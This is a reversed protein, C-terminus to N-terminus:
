TRLGRLLNVLAASLAAWGVLELSLADQAVGWIVSGIIIVGPLAHLVVAELKHREVAVVRNLSPSPSAAGFSMEDATLWPPFLSAARSKPIDYFEYRSVRPKGPIAPIQQLGWSLVSVLNGKDSAKDAYKRIVDNQLSFGSWLVLVGTARDILSSISESFGEPGFGLSVRVEVPYGAQELRGVLEQAEYADERAYILVTGTV